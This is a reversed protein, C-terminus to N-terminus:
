ASRQPARTRRFTSRLVLAALVMSIVLVAGQALRVRVGASDPTATAVDTPAAAADPQAADDPPTAQAAMDRARQALAVERAPLWQPGRATEVAQFGAQEFGAVIRERRHRDLERNYTVNNRLRTTPAANARWPEDPYITVQAGDEVVNGFLVAGNDFEVRYTDADIPPAPVPPEVASQAQALAPILLCVAVALM